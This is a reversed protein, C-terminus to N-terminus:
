VMYKINVKSFVFFYSFLGPIAWKKLFLPGIEAEKQKNEYKGCLVIKLLNTFAYITHKPSSGLTAPHFDCIFGSLKATDGVTKLTQKCIQTLYM